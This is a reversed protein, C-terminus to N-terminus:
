SAPKKSASKLRIIEYFGILINDIGLGVIAGKFFPSTVIPGIQPFLYLIPNHEWVSRWPLLLLVYGIELSYLIYLITFAKATKQFWSQHGSDVSPDPTPQMM